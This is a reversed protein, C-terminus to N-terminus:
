DLKSKRFLDEIDLSIGIYYTRGPSLYSNFTVQPAKYDLLNNIGYTLYIGKPLKSALSFRFVAYSPYEVKYYMEKMDDFSYMKLPGLLRNSMTLTHATKSLWFSYNIQLTASHPRTTSVNYGDMEIRDNVYAYAIKFSFNKNIKYNANIDIGYVSAQDANAYFNTDGKLNSYLAIKNVIHNYYGVFAINFQKKSYESSAFFYHSTEPSLDPNGVIRFMGQHDWNTYLEKLTPSRFGNAYGGRWTFYKQKWMASIKPSLHSGFSSHNDYRLGGELSLTSSLLFHDQIYASFSNTQNTANDLFMYTVLSEQLWEIGSTLGHKEKWQTNHCLRANQIESKYTQDKRDLLLLYDHKQYNDYHYTAELLNKEDFRYSVRATTMLDTYFDHRKEGIKGGNFRENDYYNGDLVIKFSKNPTVTFKQGISRTLFGEIETPITNIDTEVSGNEYYLNLPKTDKLFYNNTKQWSVISQSSFYQRKFGLTAGTKISGPTEYRGNLNLSFPKKAQKTIINVVGGIANSGYIISSAGKIIEVREINNVNLRNYDINNQTEGSMREGDILFLIYNGDLGQMSININGGHQTFEVGPIEAELVEQFDSLSMKEIDKASIVNVISPTNKLAKESRTGTIVISSLEDFKPILQIKFTKEEEKITTSFNEYGLHSVMLVQGINASISFRGTTDAQTYANTGKVTINALPIGKGNEIDTIIGTLVRQQAWVPLTIFVCFIILLYFNRMFFVAM